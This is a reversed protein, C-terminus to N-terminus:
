VTLRKATYGEFVFNKDFDQGRLIGHQNKKNITSLCMLSMQQPLNKTGVFHDCFYIVLLVTVHFINNAILM